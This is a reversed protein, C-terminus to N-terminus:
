MGKKDGLNSVGSNEMIRNHKRQKLNGKTFRYNIEFFVAHVTSRNYDRFQMRFFDLTNNGTTIYTTQPNYQYSLGLWVDKHSWELRLFISPSITSERYGYINKGGLWGSFPNQLHALFRFEDFMFTADIIEGYQLLKFKENDIYFKGCTVNAAVVYRFWKAPTHNLLINVGGRYSNDSNVQTRYVYGDQQYIKSNLEGKYYAFHFQGQLFFNGDKTYYTPTIDTYYGYYDNLNDNEVYYYRDRILQVSNTLMTTNIDYFMFNGSHRLSFTSTPNYNFNYGANPLTNSHSKGNLLYINSSSTAKAYLSIKKNFQKSYTIYANINHTHNTNHSTSDLQEYRNYTHNVGISYTGKWLNGLYRADSTIAYLHNQMGYTYNDNLISATDGEIKRDITRFFDSKSLTNTINLAFIDNWPTSYQYYLDLLGNLNHSTKNENDHGYHHTNNDSISNLTINYPLTMQSENTTFSAKAGFLHRNNQFSYDLLVDHQMNKSYIEKSDYTNHRSISDDTAYDFTMQNALNMLSRTNRYSAFFTNLSDAYQFRALELGNLTQFSEWSTLNIMIYPDITKHTYVEIVVDANYRAYRPPVEHYHHIRKIDEPKIMALEDSTAVRDNIIVLLEGDLSTLKGMSKDFKPLQAIADIANHSRAIIDKSLRLIDKEADTERIQSTVVVEKLLNLDESLTLTGLNITDTQHIDINRHLDTYGIMSVRMIYQAPKINNISFNGKPDSIAGTIITTDSTTLLVVSASVLTDGKDSIIKGKIQNQSFINVSSIIAIILIIYKM